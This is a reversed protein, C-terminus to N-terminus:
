RPATGIWRIVNTRRDIQYITGYWYRYYVGPGDRYRYSLRPPLAGLNVPARDGIRLYGGGRDPGPARDGPYDYRRDDRDGDYRNADSGREDDWQGQRDDDRDYGREAQDDYRDDPSARPAVVSRGFRNQEAAIVDERLRTVQRSLNNREWESIGDNGFQFTLRRLRQAESRLWQGDSSSIIQLRLDNDIHRALQDLQDVPSASRYPNIPASRYQAAAPGAAMASLIGLLVLSRM